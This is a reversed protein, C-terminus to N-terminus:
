RVPLKSPLLGCAQARIVVEWFDEWQHQEREGHSYGGTLLTGQDGIRLHTVVRGNEVFAEVSVAGRTIRTM